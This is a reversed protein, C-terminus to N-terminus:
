GRQAERLRHVARKLLSDFRDSDLDMESMLEAKTKMAFGIGFFRTAVYREDQPGKALVQMIRYTRGALEAGFGEAGVDAASVAEAVM